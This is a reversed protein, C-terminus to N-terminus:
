VRAATQRLGDTSFIRRGPHTGSHSGTEVHCDEYELDLTFLCLRRQMPFYYPFDPSDHQELKSFLPSLDPSGANLDDRYTEFFATADALSHLPQGLELTIVEGRCERGGGTVLNVVSPDDSSSYLNGPCRTSVVDATIHKLKHIVILKKARHARAIAEAEDFPVALCFIMADYHTRADTSELYATQPTVNTLGRRALLRRLSGIVAPVKDIADIHAVYPALELSLYGLGCGADCVRMDSTLHPLIRHALDTFYSSHESADQMFHIMAPKWHHM